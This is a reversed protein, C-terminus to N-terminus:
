GMINQTPQPAQYELDLSIIRNHKYGLHVTCESGKIQPKPAVGKLFPTEPAFVRIFQKQSTQQVVTKCVWPIPNVTTNAWPIEWIYSFCQLVTTCPIIYNYVIEIITHSLSHSSSSSTCRNKHLNYGKMKQVTTFPSANEKHVYGMTQTFWTIDTERQLTNLTNQM